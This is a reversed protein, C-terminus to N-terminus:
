HIAAGEENLFSQLSLALTNPTEARGWHKRVLLTNTGMEISGACRYSEARVKIAGVPSMLREFHTVSIYNVHSQLKQKMLLCFYLVWTGEKFTYM